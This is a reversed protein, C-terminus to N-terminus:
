NCQIKSSCQNGKILVFSGYTFVSLIQSKLATGTECGHSVSLVEVKRRSELWFLLNAYTSCKTAKVVIRVGGCGSRAALSWGLQEGGGDKGM